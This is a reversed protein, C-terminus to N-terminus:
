ATAHVVQVSDDRGLNLLRRAESAVRDELGGYIADLTRNTHITVTITHVTKNANRAATLEEDTYGLQRMAQSFEGNWNMENAKTAWVALVQARFADAETIETNVPGIPQTM